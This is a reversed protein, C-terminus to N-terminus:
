GWAKIEEFLKARAVMECAFERMISIITYDGGIMRTDFRFRINGIDDEGLIEMPCRLSFEIATRTTM